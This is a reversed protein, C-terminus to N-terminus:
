SRADQKNNPLFNSFADVYFAFRQRIASESLGTGELDYAHVGQQHVQNADSWARMAEKAANSVEMGLFRYIDEVCGMDDSVIKSYALDLVDAHTNKRWSMHRRYADTFEDMVWDAIDRKNSENATYQHRMAFTLSILSPVVSMIDRHLMIFQADPFNKLIDTERGLHPPAKLIWRKPAEGRHHQWQLYKLLRRLLAYVHDRDQERIWEIYDPMEFYGNPAWSSFAPELLYIEEEPQCAEAHHAKSIGSHRSARWHLFRAAEDIRPDEAERDADPFPAFNYGQWMMMGTFDGGQYLLRHLKTSGTRPMGLIFVPAVIEQEHIEPHADWDAQFRLRNILVRQFRAIALERGDETFSTNANVSEVIKRFSALFREDGFSNLGTSQRAMDLLDDPTM